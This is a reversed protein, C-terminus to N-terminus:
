RRPHENVEDPSQLTFGVYLGGAGAPAHSIEEVQVEYYSAWHGPTGFRRCPGDALVLGESNGIVVGMAAMFGRGTATKLEADLQVDSGKATPHWRRFYMVGPAFGAWKERAAGGM